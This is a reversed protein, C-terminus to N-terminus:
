SGVLNVLRVFSNVDNCLFGYEAEARIAMLNNEWLSTLTGDITVSAETSVDYAIGGISGWVCQSWDGAYGVVTDLDTTAVGDAMFTPRGMVRGTRVAPVLSAPSSPNNTDTYISEVFLPRGNSDVSANLTPEVIDDFLFGSLKKGDDVLLRLAANIDAWVGGDAAVNSGLEVAKTTQDLFQAFPTSTGHLVATDFASAFAEAIQPRIQDMYGGPNARVVEASVIAIAAIKKPSITKLGMTGKSNPKSGAEDVWSATMKATVVPITQGNIGLPVKRAVQQVVSNKAAEDFYPQAMEPTLFGSFQSTLVTNDAM